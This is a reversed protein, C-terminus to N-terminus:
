RKLIKLPFLTKGENQDQFLLWQAKGEKTRKNVEPAVAFEDNFKDKELVYKHVARGFLLAPTSEEPNDKWYRFHAPSKAIKKLDTSSVGERARYEKNSIILDKM